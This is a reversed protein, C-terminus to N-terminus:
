EEKIKRQTKALIREFFIYLSIQYPKLIQEIKSINMDNEGSEYKSITSTAVGSKYALDEQLDGHEIRIIKLESSVIKLFTEKM